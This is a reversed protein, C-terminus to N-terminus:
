GIMGMIHVLPFVIIWSDTRDLVGGHGPLLVGSDKVGFVRKYASQILDGLQGAASIVLGLGLAAPLTFHGPAQPLFSFVAAAAVALLTGGVAGEWTKKPSIEPWMKHKGFLMGAAYAGIDTMWICAYLLYSWFLGSEIRVSAMHFFGTGIYFFALFVLSVIRIDIRNKALVTVALVLLMVPWMVHFLPWPGSDPMLLPLFLAIIGAFGALAPLEFPRIGSMRLFEHFGILAMLLILATFWVGGIHLFALFIAAAVIGTIIRQVM